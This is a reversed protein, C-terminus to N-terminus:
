SAAAEIDAFWQRARLWAAQSRLARLRKWDQMAQFADCLAPCWARTDSAVCESCRARHIWVVRVLEVTLLDLEAADAPSWWQMQSLTPLTPRRSM